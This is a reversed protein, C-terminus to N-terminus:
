RHVRRAPPSRDSPGPSPIDQEFSELLTPLQDELFTAFAADRVSIAAGGKTRRVVLVTDGNRGCYSSKDSKRAPKALAASLRLFRLDSPLKAFGPDAIAASAVSKASPNALLRDLTIWRPRGIAPAPGVALIVELPLRAVLSLMTALDTRSPGIATRIAARSFGNENLRFAFLAKEIFSLNARESNEVGQAVVLQVDSLPRVIARVTQGLQQAARTRRHGCAIQFRGARSPHPRVIIPQQQGNEAISEVLDDYAPDDTTPIRDPLLSDDVLGPDLEVVSEGRLPEALVSEFIRLSGVKAREREAKPGGAAPEEGIEALLNPRKPAM